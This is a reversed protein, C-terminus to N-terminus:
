KPEGEGLCTIECLKVKRDQKNSLTAADATAIAEEAATGDLLKAYEDSVTEGHMVKNLFDMEKLILSHLWMPTRKGPHGYQIAGDMVTSHYIRTRDDDEAQSEHVLFHTDKGNVRLTGATDYMNIKIAGKTGEILIYHEGWRFASGWELQAYRHNSFELQMMIMDDEDGFNEGQHAVDSASMTVAQPLGGMLFQVCDLEHIHHYLHGGSKSRVKKWSVSPQPEEWGNRASKVCLVNGIVGDNILQKAHHVGNFFNMIHGAMFIVGAKKCANVMAVCDRYNLAIPKECFVNKHAAAAKMVPEKHLYNPTAVIVCDIDARAILDDLSAENAAGLEAAITAGNEPDYVAVVAADSNDKMARGLEAGFYGTGVIGYKIM